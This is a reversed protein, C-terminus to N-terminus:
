GQRAADLSVARAVATLLDDAIAAVITDLPTARTEFAWTPTPREAVLSAVRDHSRRLFAPDRSLDRTADAATRERAVDYAVDLWCWRTVTGAPVESLLTGIEDADHFPGDALVVEVGSRM